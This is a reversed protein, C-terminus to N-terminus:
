FDESLIIDVAQEAIAYVAVQYHSAMPQPIVSADVVRLNKVGYVKLSGDVVKGMSATGGPHFVTSGGLKIREDIQENTADLGAIALGAPTYEEVVLEKGEPTDLMLRAHMRFGERMVHKDTETAFYNPDIVPSESPDDSSLTVSGRSTPLCGMYYTMISKGDIPIQLGQAEAGFVAYLLNMELHSRPGKLLVHNDPVPGEDKELAEKLPATSIPATVLWDVPGGKDYNPGNFSSAGLALGKEPHRLKWYRFMMLHDHLNTGVQPLDVITAIGHQSLHVPDGIGSLQLVQPTRYAGASVIVQGGQKVMHTEGSALEVGVAVKDDNIIVRRVLTDTLVKVGHLPYAASAIQRKGDKWNEVLEAIGQPHGNNADSVRQLGLHSWLKFITDRLPFKRGSSSVSATVIPGDFGHQAPNADTDFHKETRKFYPLLGNYSWREDNVERAWEDYDLADGRIWGGTNIITGGSLGKMACNYRPAGNLHKQPVTMYKWDLDSFHLFAAEAPKEVHPHGTVDPGAEILIISLEPKRQRLRSALVVGATGGGIIIIDAM